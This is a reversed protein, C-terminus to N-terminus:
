LVALVSSPLSLLEADCDWVTSVNPMTTGADVGDFGAAVCVSLLPEVIVPAAVVDAGLLM